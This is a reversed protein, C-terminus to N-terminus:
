TTLPALAEISLETKRSRRLGGRRERMRTRAPRTGRVPAVTRPRRAPTRDPRFLARAATRPLHDPPPDPADSKLSSRRGRGTLRNGYIGPPRRSLPLDAPSRSFLPRRTPARSFLRRTARPPLPLRSSRRPPRAVLPVRRVRVSHASTARRIKIISGPSREAASEFM